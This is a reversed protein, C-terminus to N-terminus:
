YRYPYILHFGVTSKQQYYKPAALPRGIFLDYQLKRGGRIGLATGALFRGSLYETAPGYVSGADLAWYIEMAANPRPLVLENRWYWGREASLTNEGDFGRVTYRSGIGLYESAYVLDDTYQGHIAGRYSTGRKDFAASQYQIDVLWMKYRSTPMDQGKVDAQANFWPRGQRQTLKFDWIGNQEYHRHTLALQSATTNKRQVIIEADNIYSRSHRKIIGYELNTKSNHDRHLLQSVRIDLSNSNGTTQYPDFGSPVITQLYHSRNASITITSKQWPISYYISNVRSGRQDGKHELDKNFSIHFLDSANALNDISYTVSQQIMGTAKTGTDDISWSINQRAGQRITLVIDSYGVAESPVIQMDADQSSLRKLQELGQELLRLNLIAGPRTPFTNQWPVVASQESYVFRGIRGAVIELRVEGGSINQAPIQVRTTIYGRKVLSNTLRKAILAIGELGIRRGEYPEIQPELWAFHRADPGTLRIKDIHFSNTEVPLTTDGREYPQEDLVVRPQQQRRRREESEQRARMRQEERDAEAQARRQQEDIDGTAAVALAPLLFSLLLVFVVARLQWRKPQNTM